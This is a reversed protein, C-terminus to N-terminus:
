PFIETMAMVALEFIMNINLIIRMILILSTDNGPDLQTTAGATLWADASSVM